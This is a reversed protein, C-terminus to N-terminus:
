GAACLFGTQQLPEMKPFITKVRWGGSEAIEIIQNPHYISHLGPTDPTREYYAKATEDSFATFYLQGDDRTVRRIQAFTLRAEDPSQHTIVSFMCAADCSDIALDSLADVGLVGRKSAYLANRTSLHAFQFREDGRLAESLWDIVKHNVEVGIYRGFSLNLNRITRAFRVGCGLDLLRKDAYSQWGLRRRLCELLIFGTVEPAYATIARANLQFPPDIPDFPPESPDVLLTKYDPM